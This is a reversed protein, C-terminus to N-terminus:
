NPELFYYVEPVTKGRYMLPDEDCALDQFKTCSSEFESYAPERSAFM